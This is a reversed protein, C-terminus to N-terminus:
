FFGRVGALLVPGVDRPLPEGPEVGLRIEVRFLEDEDVLGARRGLHSPEVAARLASGAAARRDRMAMPLRCRERGAQAEGAESRGHDEIARHVARGEEGIDLLTERWRERGAVDDDHIVQGGMLRESDLPRDLFRARLQAEQRGVTGVEIGDLEGEGLEFRDQSLGSGPGDVVEPADDCVGQM